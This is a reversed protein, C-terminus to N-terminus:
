LSLWGTATGGVHWRQEVGDAGRRVEVTGDFLPALDDPVASGDGTPAHYHGMGDVREVAKTVGLLFRRVDRRDYGEVLPALSDFCLRLRAPSRRPEEAAVSEVTESIAAGLARLEASEVTVDRDLSDVSRSSEARRSRDDPRWSVVAAADRSPDADIAALRERPAAREPDAAVLVRYRPGASSEGLFRECVAGAGDTGVLLMNSGDRKLERLRRGFRAPEADGTRQEGGM